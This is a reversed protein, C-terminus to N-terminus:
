KKEVEEISVIAEWYAKQGNESLSTILVTVNPFLLLIYNYLIMM